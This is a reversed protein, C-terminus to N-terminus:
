SIYWTHVLWYNVTNEVELRVVHGASLCTGKAMKGERHM